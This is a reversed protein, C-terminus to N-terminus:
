RGSPKRRPAATPAKDSKPAYAIKAGQADYAAERRSGTDSFLDSDPLRLHDALRGLAHENEEVSGDALIHRIAVGEREMERAVLVTRHCDLPEREACM